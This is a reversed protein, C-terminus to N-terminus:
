SFNEEPDSPENLLHVRRGDGDLAPVALMDLSSVRVLCRKLLDQGTFSLNADTVMDCNLGFVLIYTSSQM